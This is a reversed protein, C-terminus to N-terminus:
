PQIPGYWSSNDVLLTTCVGRQDWQFSYYSNPGANAVAQLIGPAVSACGASVGASNRASCFVLSSGTSFGQIYCGIGSLTDPASRASMATGQAWRATTDLEVSATVKFGAHATGLALAFVAGAAIILKNKM